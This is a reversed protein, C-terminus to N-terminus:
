TSPTPSITTTTPSPADPQQWQGNKASKLQNALALVQDTNMDDARLIVWHGSAEPWILTTAEAPNTPPPFNPNTPPYTHTSVFGARGRIDIRQLTEDM